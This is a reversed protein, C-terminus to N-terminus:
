FRAGLGATFGNNGHLWCYGGYIYTLPFPTINVGASLRPKTVTVSDGAAVPLGWSSPVQATLKTRDIGIGIFPKVFPLDFTASVSASLHNLDLSDNKFKDYFIGAMIDPLFKALTHKMVGYRLGGGILTNGSYGVGRVCAEFDFPLGITAQVMPVAFTKISASELITDGKGPSFQGNVTVGVDFGPFGVASGTHFDSLGILGGFDAAFPEMADKTLNNRFDDAISAKAPAALVASLAITTMIVLTKKMLATEGKIQLKM